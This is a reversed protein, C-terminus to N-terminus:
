WDGMEGALVWELDPDEQIMLMILAILEDKSKKKLRKLIQEYEEKQRDFKQSPIYGTNNQAMIAYGTAAMHKCPGFDEFAPCTCKGSLISEKLELQITYLWTGACKATAKTHTVSTLEVLGEAFYEMGRELYRKDILASLHSNTLQM